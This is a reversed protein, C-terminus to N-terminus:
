VLLNSLKLYDQSLEPLSASILNPITKTIFTNFDIYENQPLRKFYPLIKWLAPTNQFIPLIEKAILGYNFRNKEPPIQALNAINNQIWENLKGNIKCNGEPMKNAVYNKFNSAYRKLNPNARNNHKILTDHLRILFFRSALECMTEEFWFSTECKGDLPGDIIYHCFEHAFQYAYQDWFNGVACLYIIRKNIDSSCKMIMPCKREKIIILISYPCIEKINKQKMVSKFQGIICKITDSITNIDVGLSDDCEISVHNNFFTNQAM